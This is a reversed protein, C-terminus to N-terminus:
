QDKEKSKNVPKANQLNKLITVAEHLERLPLPQLKSDFVNATFNEKTLTQNVVLFAPTKINYTICLNNIRTTCDSIENRYFYVFYMYLSVILSSMEMVMSPMNIENPMALIDKRSHKWNNFELLHERLCVIKSGEEISEVLVTYPFDCHVIYNRFNMWFRYEMATDYYESCLKQFQLVEESKGDKRLIRTEMDIYTKISTAYNLILKNANLMLIDRPVRQVRLRSINQSNMYDQFDKGNQIVIDKIQTIPRHMTTFRFLSFIEDVENIPIEQVISINTSNNEGECQEVLYLHKDDNM